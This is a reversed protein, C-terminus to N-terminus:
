EASPNIESLLLFVNGSDFISAKNIKEEAGSRYLYDNIMLLYWFEIPM